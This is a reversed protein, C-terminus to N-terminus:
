MTGGFEKINGRNQALPSYNLSSLPSTGPMDHPLKRTKELSSVWALSSSSSSEVGDRVECVWPWRTYIAWKTGLDAGFVVSLADFLHVKLAYPTCWLSCFGSFPFFSNPDASCLWINFENISSNLLTKLLVPGYSQSWFEFSFYFAFVSQM